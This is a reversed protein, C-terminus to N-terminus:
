YTTYGATPGDDVAPEGSMDHPVQVGCFGEQVNGSGDDVEFWVGYVRGNGAGQREARVSFASDGTLLIDDLTAGDGKGTVDEPEDSYIATIFGVTDIELEGDCADTVTIGCDALTLARYKHNPPWLLASGNGSVDPPTTDAVWVTAECSDSEGSPDTVTLTVPNVGQLYPGADSYSFTLADGDPDYSGADVDGWATCSGDADLFLDACLAVPPENLPVYVTVDQTGVVVDDALFDVSCVLTGDEDLAGADNNEPVTITEGFVVSEGGAVGTYEAPSYGFLLPDCDADPIATVTYTLTELGSLVAGAIGSSNTSTTVVSGGTFAALDDMETGSGPAKIAIIKIGGDELADLTEAATAGPYPFSYGYDGGEHFSADTTIAIVKTADERFHANLGPAIEGVDDYDLDGNVDRGAGSVAQYLGEYQSEPFDYGWYITMADVADLWTDRDTTFDQDLRYAYDGSGGWPAFPFDVFTALAFRSDPTSAIIDDHLGPSLAKINVLDDYYSGSLDVLLLFDLKPTDEPLTVTKEIFVSEGPELEGEWSAPSVTASAPLASLLLLAAALRPLDSRTRM